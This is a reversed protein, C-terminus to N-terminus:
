DSEQDTSSETLNCNRTRRESYVSQDSNPQRVRSVIPIHMANVASDAALQVSQRSEIQPPWRCYSFHVKVICPLDCHAPIKLSCKSIIKSKNNPSYSSVSCSKSKDADRHLQSWNSSTCSRAVSKYGLKRNLCQGDRSQANLTDVPDSISNRPGVSVVNISRRM